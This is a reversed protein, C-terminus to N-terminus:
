EVMQLKSCRRSIPWVRVARVGFRLWPQRMPVPQRVQQTRHRVGLQHQWTVKRMVRAADSVQIGINGGDVLSVDYFDNSKGDFVPFFMEAVTPSNIGSQACNKSFEGNQGLCTGVDCQYAGGQMSCNTRPWFRGAWPTPVCIQITAGKPQLTWSNGNQPVDVCFGAAGKPAHCFQNPNTCDSPQTCSAASSPIPADLPVPAFYCQNSACYYFACRNQGQESTDCVTNTPCDANTQCSNAKGMYGPVGASKNCYQKQGENCDSNSQCYPLVQTPTAGNCFQNVGPCDSHQSCSVSARCVHPSGGLDCSSGPCDADSQCTKTGAANGAAGVYITTSQCNNVLTIAREGPKCAVDGGGTLKTQPANSNQCAAYSLLMLGILVVSATMMRKSM